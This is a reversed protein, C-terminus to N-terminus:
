EDEGDQEEDEDPLDEDGPASYYLMWGGEVGEIDMLTFDRSMGAFVQPESHFASNVVMRAESATKALAIPCFVQAEIEERDSDDITVTIGSPPVPAELLLNAIVPSM